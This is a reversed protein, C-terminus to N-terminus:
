GVVSGNMATGSPHSPEAVAPMSRAACSTRSAAARLLWIEPPRLASALSVSVSALRAQLQVGPKAQRSYEVPGPSLDPRGELEAEADSLASTSPSSSAHPLAM